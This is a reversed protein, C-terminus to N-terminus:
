SNLYYRRDECSHQLFYTLYCNFYRSFLSYEMFKIERKRAGKTDYIGAVIPVSIIDIIFRVHLELKSLKYEM